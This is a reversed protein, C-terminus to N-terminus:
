VDPPQATFMVCGCNTASMMTPFQRTPDSAVIGGVLVVDGNVFGHSASTYVVPNANTAATIQRTWTAGATTPDFLAAKQADTLWLLGAENGRERGKDFLIASM